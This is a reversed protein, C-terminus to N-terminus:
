LMEWDGGERKAGKGSPSDGRESVDADGEESLVDSVSSGRWEPDAPESQSVCLLPAGGAESELKALRGCLEEFDDACACCMCHLVDRSLVSASFVTQRCPIQYCLAAHSTVDESLLLLLDLSPAQLRQDM